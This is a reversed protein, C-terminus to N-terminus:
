DAEDKGGKWAGQRTLRDYFFRVSSKERLLPPPGRLSTCVFNSITTERSSPPLNCRPVEYVGGRVSSLSSNELFTDIDTCRIDRAGDFDIFLRPGGM